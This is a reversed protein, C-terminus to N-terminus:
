VSTDHRRREDMVFGQERSYDPAPFDSTIDIARGERSSQMAALMVELLTFGRRLASATM